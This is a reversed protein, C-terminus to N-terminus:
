DFLFDYPTTLGDGLAPGPSGKGKILASIVMKGKRRRAHKVPMVRALQKGRKTILIGGEPVDELLSLCESRFQTINLELM